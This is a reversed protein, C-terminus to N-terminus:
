RFKVAPETRLQDVEPRAIRDTNLGILDKARARPMMDGDRVISGAFSGSQFNVDVSFRDAVLDNVIRQCTFNIRPTTTVVM